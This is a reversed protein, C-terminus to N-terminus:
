LIYYLSMINSTIYFNFFSILFYIFLGIIIENM